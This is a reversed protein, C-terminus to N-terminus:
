TAASAKCAKTYLQYQTRATYYAIGREECAALIDKRRTAPDEALMAGAIDWVMKCPSQVASVHLKSDTKSPALANLLANANAWIFGTGHENKAIEISTLEIALAHKKIFAKAARGANAKASYSKLEYNLAEM